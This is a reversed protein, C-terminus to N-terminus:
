PPTLSFQTKGVRLTVDEAIRVVQLEGLRSGERVRYEVGDLRLVVYPPTDLVIRQVEVRREWDPQPRAAEGVLARLWVRFVRRRGSELGLDIEVVSLARTAPVRAELTGSRRLRTTGGGEDETPGTAGPLDVEYDLRVRASTADIHLPTVLLKVREDLPQDRGGPSQELLQEVPRGHVARLRLTRREIVQPRELAGAAALPELMEELRIVLVTAPAPRDLRAVLKRLGAVRAQPVRLLLRPGDVLATGGAFARVVPMLEAPPRHRPVVVILAETGDEIVEFAPGEDARAPGGCVLAAASLLAGLVLAPSVSARIPSRTM